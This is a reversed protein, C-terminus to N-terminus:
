LDLDFVLGLGNAFGSAAVGLGAFKIALTGDDDASLVDATKEEGSIVAVTGAVIYGAALLLRNQKANPVTKINGNPDRSINGSPDLEAYVIAGTAPDKTAAGFIARNNVYLFKRAMQAALLGLAVAVVRPDQFVLLPNDKPRAIKAVKQRWLARKRATSCIELGLWIYVRSPM